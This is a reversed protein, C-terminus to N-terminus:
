GAHRRSRKGAGRWAITVVQEIEADGHVPAVVPTVKLRDLRRRMIRTLFIIQCLSGHGSQVHNRGRMLGPTIETLLELWKGALSAEFNIFGTINGGPRPSARLSAPASRTPFLLLIIPIARTERQLAAIAPTTNALIMDPQLDVLEKAFARMQDVSTPAWRYDMRVNRGEAWGLEALGQRFGSLNARGQLDNEAAAMLVGIRRMREAQQARAAAAVYGGAGGLLTILKRRHHENL